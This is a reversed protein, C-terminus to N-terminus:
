TLDLPRFEEKCHDRYLSRSLLEDRVMRWQRKQRKANEMEGKVRINGHAPQEPRPDHVVGVWTDILIEAMPIVAQGHTSWDSVVTDSSVGVSEMVQGIDISCGSGDDYMFANPQLRVRQTATDTRLCDDVKKVRRYIRTDLELWSHHLITWM